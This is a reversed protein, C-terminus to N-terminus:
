LQFSTCDMIILAAALLAYAQAGTLLARFLSLANLSARSVVSFLASSVKSALAGSLHTVSGPIENLATFFASSYM